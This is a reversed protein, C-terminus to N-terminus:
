GSHNIDMLRIRELPDLMALAAEMAEAGKHGKKGGLRELAQARNNTTLIGFIVPIDAELAIKGIGKSINQCVYEFHATEGKIVLGLCVIGHFTKSQVLQHAIQPIEFCGPVDFRTLHNEEGGLEHFKKTAGEVMLETLEQYFKSVVLAINLQKFGSM